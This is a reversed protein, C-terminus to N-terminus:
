AALNGFPRDTMVSRFIPLTHYEGPPFLVIPMRRFSALALYMKSVIFMTSTERQTRFLQNGPATLHIDPCELIEASLRKGTSSQQLFIISILSQTSELSAIDVLTIGVANRIKLGDTEMGFDQEALKDEERMRLCLSQTSESEVPFHLIKGYRIINNLRKKTKECNRKIKTGNNLYHHKERFPLYM